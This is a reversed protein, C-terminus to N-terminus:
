VGQNHRTILVWVFVLVYVVTGCWGMICATRARGFGTLTGYSRDIDAIALHGAVLGVVLFPAFFCGLTAFIIAVNALPCVTPPQPVYNM